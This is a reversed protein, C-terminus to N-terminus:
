QEVLHELSALRAARDVSRDVQVELISTVARVELVQDVLPRLALAVRVLRLQVKLEVQTVVLVVGIEHRLLCEEERRNLLKARFHLPSLGLLVLVENISLELALEIVFKNLLVGVLQLVLEVLQTQIARSLPLARQAAQLSQRLVM